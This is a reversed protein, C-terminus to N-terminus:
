TGLVEVPCRIGAARALRADATVLPVAFLEAMAVFAADYPSLADRLEWCRSAVDRHPATRLPLDILDALAESARAAAIKRGRLMSIVELYVIDPALLEGAEALRARATAGAPGDDALAPGLVSTDVVIM